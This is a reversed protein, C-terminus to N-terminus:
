WEAELADHLGQLVDEARAQNRPPTAAPQANTSAPVSDLRAAPAKSTVAPATALEQEHLLGIEVLRLFRLSYPTNHSSKWAHFDDFFGPPLTTRFRKLPMGLGARATTMLVPRQLHKGLYSNEVALGSVALQSFRHAMGFRHSEAHEEALTFRLDGYELKFSVQQRWQLRDVSSSSRVSATM